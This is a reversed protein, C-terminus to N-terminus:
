EVVIKMTKAGEVKVIYLGPRLNALSVESGAHAVSLVRNGTPQYVDVRNGQLGTGLHLAHNSNYLLTNAEDEPTDIGTIADDDILALYMEAVSWNKDNRYTQKTGNQNIRLYRANNVRDPLTVVLYQCASTGQAADNWTTGNSSTQVTYDVPGEEANYAHLIVTNFTQQHSFQAQLWQGSTQDADTTWYTATNNDWARSATGQGNTDNHATMKSVTVDNTKVSLAWNARLTNTWNAFRTTDAGAVDAIAAEVSVRPTVASSKVLKHLNSFQGGIVSASAGNAVNFSESGGSQMFYPQMFRVKGGNIRTLHQFDGWCITSFLNVTHSFNAGTQYVVGTYDGTADISTSGTSKRAVAQTNIMDIDTAAGQFDYTIIAGDVSNSLSQVNAAGGQGDNRFIIGRYCDCAFNNYLVEDSCDGVIMFDMYGKSQAGAANLFDSNTKYGQVTNTWRSAINDDYGYTGTNMQINSVLGNKSQGGIHIVNMFSHGTIADVYHNSCDRSFLDVGRYDARLALNVIYVGRNGRVTYPFPIVNKPDTQEPYDVTIGRLGSNPEMDILPNGNENGKSANQYCELIAGQGCPFAPMDASGKLEVGTPITLSGKIVYIGAPLYVIGGGDAKAQDLANQIAATQDTAADLSAFTVDHTLFPTAGFQKDTVVYLIDKAPQTTKIEMNSEDFSPLAPLTLAKDSVACAYLSRNVLEAGGSLTNGRFITRAGNGILVDHGFTNATAVLEGGHFSVPDSVTCQQMMLATNANDESFVAQGNGKFTSAYLSVHGMYGAHLYVGYDCGTINMRTFQEGYAASEVIDLGRECDSITFNYNANNPLGPVRNNEIVSMRTQFATHYHDCTYNTTYSWDSRRMVIGVANNRTWSQVESLSPAGALGSEAWIQPSFRVGDIRGVDVINDMYIGTHLPTGYIQFDNPCNGEQDTIIADYSNVFTCCRVQPFNCGRYGQVGMHITPGMAVPQSANQGPYWFNIGQVMSAVAMSIFADSTANSGTTAPEIRFITGEIKGEPKRWDGRLTVGRPLTLQGRFLYTGAPFYITAGASQNFVGATTNKYGSGYQGVHNILKQVAETCDTHGTADIGYDTVDYECVAMDTTPFSANHIIKYKPTYSDAMAGVSTMLSCSASLVTFLLAKFTM